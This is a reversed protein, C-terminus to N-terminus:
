ELLKGKCFSAWKPLVARRLGPLDTNRTWPSDAPSHQPAPILSDVSKGENIIFDAIHGGGDTSDNTASEDFVIILLGDKQFTPSSILPTINQRLWADAFQLSGDHADDTPNM